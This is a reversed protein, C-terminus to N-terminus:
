TKPELLKLAENIRRVEDMMADRARILALRAGAADRGSMYPGPAPLDEDPAPQIGPFMRGDSIDYLRASNWGFYSAIDHKRDGRKIMGLAIAADRETIKIGSSESRHGRIALTPEITDYVFLETM